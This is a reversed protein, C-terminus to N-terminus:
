SWVNKFGAPLTSIYDIEYQNVWLRELVEWNIEINIDNQKGSM